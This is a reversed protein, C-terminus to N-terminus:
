KGANEVGLLKYLPFAKDWKRMVEYVISLPKVDDITKAFRRTGPTGKRRVKENHCELTSFYKQVSALMNPLIKVDINEFYKANSMTKHRSSLLHYIKRGRNIQKEEHLNWCKLAVWGFDFLSGVQVSCTHNSDTAANLTSDEYIVPRFAEKGAETINNDYLILCRLISNSRLANGILVADSDTLNNGSLSLKKLRPNTALFDALLTIGVTTIVSRCLDLNELKLDDITLLSALMEDSVGAEFCLNLKLEALLPHNRVASCLREIHQNGIQNNAIELKRLHKNSEVVDLISGVSMGGREGGGLNNNIFELVQFPKGVLAEKVLRMAYPTLQVYYFRFSSECNAPLLNIAPTFRELALAFERWHSFLENNVASSLPPEEDSMEMYIDKRHSYTFEGRRMKTTADKLEKAADVLFEAEDQSYGSQELYDESLEDASYKWSQNKLIMENFEHHKLAKDAQKHVADVKTELRDALSDCKLDLDFYRKDIHEKTAKSSSELMNELSSCKRELQECKSELRSVTSLREEMRMMMQEMRNLQAKNNEHPLPGSGSSSGDNRGSFYGFWSSLFGGGDNTNGTSVDHACDTAARGDNAKRKKAPSSSSSNTNSLMSYLPTRQVYTERFPYIIIHPTNICFHLRLPTEPSQVGM